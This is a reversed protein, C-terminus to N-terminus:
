RPSWLAASRTYSPTGSGSLASSTASQMANTTVRGAWTFMSRTTTLGSAWAAGWLSARRGDQGSRPEKGPERRSFSGRDLRPPATPAPDHRARIGAARGPRGLHLAPRDLRAGRPREPADRDRQFRDPTHHYAFGDIEIALRKEPLAVDIVAVLEGHRWVDFNPHWGLIGSQRLLRHLLRESQAAAGDGLAAALVRLQRNGTRCPQRRVRNMFDEPQVWGRQVARDALQTAAGRPLRGVHDLVTERLTTIPLGNRRTISRAPIDIRHTRVGCNRWLHTTRAVIVEPRAPRQDTVGWLHAASAFGLVGGFGRVAAWLSAEYTLPAGRVVFVGRFVTEVAGSALLTDVEAESLGAAYLQRRDIVGSQGRALAAWSM